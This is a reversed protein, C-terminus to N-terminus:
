LNKYLNFRWDLLISKIQQFWLQGRKFLLIDTRWLSFALQNIRLWSDCAIRKMSFLSSLVLEHFNFICWTHINKNETFMFIGSYAKPVYGKRIYNDNDNRLRFSSVLRQKWFSNSRSDSVLKIEQRCIPASLELAFAHLGFRFANHLHCGALQVNWVSILRTTRLGLDKRRRWEELKKM